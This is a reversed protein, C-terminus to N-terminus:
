PDVPHFSPVFYNKIFNRISITQKLLRLLQVEPIKNSLIVSQPIEYKTDARFKARLVPVTLGSSVLLRVVRIAAVACPWHGSVVNRYSYAGEMNLQIRRQRLMRQIHNQLPLMELIHELTAGAITNVESSFSPYCWWKIFNNYDPTEKGLLAQVVKYLAEACSEAEVTTKDNYRIVDSTWLGGRGVKYQYNPPTYMSYTEAKSSMMYMDLCGVGKVTDLFINHRHKELLKQVLGLDEGTEFILVLGNNGRGTPHLGNRLEELHGVFEEVCREEREAKRCGSEPAQHYYEERESNYTFGVEELLEPRGAIADPVMLAEYEPDEEEPLGPVHVCVQWVMLRGEVPVTDVSVTALLYRRDPLQHRTNAGPPAEEEQVPIVPGIFGPEEETFESNSINQKSAQLEVPPQVSPNTPPNLYVLTKKVISSLHGDLDYQKLSDPYMDYPIVRLVSLMHHYLEVPEDVWNMVDKSLRDFDYGARQWTITYDHALAKADEMRMSTKVLQVSLFNALDSMSRSDDSAQSQGPLSGAQSLIAQLYTSTMSDVATAATATTGEQPTSTISKKIQIPNAQIYQGIFKFVNGDSLLAADLTDKNKKSDPETEIICSLVAVRLDECLGQPGKDKVITWLKPDDFGAKELKLSIRIASEDARRRIDEKEEIQSMDKKKKKRKQQFIEDSLLRKAVFQWLPNRSKEIKKRQKQSLPKEKRTEPDSAAEADDVNTVNDPSGHDYPKFEGKVHPEVAVRPVPAVEPIPATEVLSIQQQM